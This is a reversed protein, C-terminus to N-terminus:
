FSHQSPANYGENSLNIRFRQNRLAIIESATMERFKNDPTTFNLVLDPQTKPKSESIKNPNIKITAGSRTKFVGIDNSPRSVEPQANANSGYLIAAKAVNMAAEGPTNHSTQSVPQIPKVTGKQFVNPNNKAPIQLKIASTNSPPVENKPQVKIKAADVVPPRSPSYNTVMEQSNQMWFPSSLVAIATAFFGGFFIKNGNLFPNISNLGAEDVVVKKPVQSSKAQTLPQAEPIEVQTDQGLESIEFGEYDLYVLIEAKLQDLIASDFQSDDIDGFKEILTVFEPNNLLYSSGSLATLLNQELRVKFENRGKADFTIREFNFYKDLGYKALLPSIVSLYKELNKKSHHFSKVNETYNKLNQIARKLNNDTFLPSSLELASQIMWKIEEFVETPKLELNIEKPSTIEEIILPKIETSISLQEPIEYQQLDIRFM